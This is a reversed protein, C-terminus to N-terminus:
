TPDIAPAIFVTDDRIHDLVNPVSMAAVKVHRVPRSLDDSEGAVLEAGLAARLQELSPHRLSPEEPVAWAPLNDDLHAIRGGLSELVDDDVRNVIVALMAGTGLSDRGVGISEVIEDVGHEHGNVVAIVPAGLHRAARGNVELEIPSSAGTFDTGEIVVVDCNAEIEKFRELIRDM